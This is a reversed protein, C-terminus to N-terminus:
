KITSMHYLWAESNGLNVWFGPILGFTNMFVSSFGWAFLPNLPGVGEIRESTHM